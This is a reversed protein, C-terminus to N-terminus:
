SLNKDTAKPNPIQEFNSSCYNDSFNATMISNQLISGQGTGCTECGDGDLFRHQGLVVVAIPKQATHCHAATVV